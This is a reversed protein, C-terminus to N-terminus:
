YDTVIVRGRQSGATEADRNVVMTEMSKDFSNFEDKIQDLWSKNKPRVTLKGDM